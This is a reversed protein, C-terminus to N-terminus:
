GNLCRILLCIQLTPLSIITFANAASDTHTASVAMITATTLIPTATTTFTVAALLLLVGNFFTGFGHHRANM